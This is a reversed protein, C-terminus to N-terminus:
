GEHQSEKAATMIALQRVTEIKALNVLTANLFIDEAWARKNEKLLKLRRKIEHTPEIHPVNNLIADEMEGIYQDTVEVFIEFKQKKTIGIMGADQQAQEVVVMKMRDMWDYLAAPIIANYIQGNKAWEVADSWQGSWDTPGAPIREKEAVGQTQSAMREVESLAARDSRYEEVCQNILALNISKGWDIVTLGKTRVAFAIEEPNM